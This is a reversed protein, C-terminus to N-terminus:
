VIWKKIIDDPDCNPLYLCLKNTHRDCKLHGSESTQSILSVTDLSKHNVWPSGKFSSFTWIVLITGDKLKRSKIKGWEARIKVDNGCEWILLCDIYSIILSFNSCTLTSVKFSLILKFRFQSYNGTLNETFNRNNYASRRKNIVIEWSDQNKWQSARSLRRASHPLSTM